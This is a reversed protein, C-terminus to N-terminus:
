EKVDLCSQIVVAQKELLYAFVGDITASRSIRYSRMVEDLTTFLVIKLIKWTAQKQLPYEIPNPVMYATKQKMKEPVSLSKVRLAEYIPVWLGQPVQYLNFAQYVLDQQFFETELHFLCPPTDPIVGESSWPLLIFILSIWALM